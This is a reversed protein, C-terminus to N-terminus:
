LELNERALTPLTYKDSLVEGQETVKITGDLTGSPQALIAEHTPGGGRGVTGGRGHFLRLRVGHDAVCDRLERQASQISWQSATIGSEKNSDSYGLMVEQLDGRATVIARYAPIRLLTDLTQRGSNLEGVGELLPVFGIDARGAHVDILGVERALIAAALVDQPGQTMSIIYSEVISSGFRRHADRICAFTDLTRRAAPSLTVDQPALPRRSSLEDTLLTLREADSLEAYPRGPAGNVATGASGLRDYLEALVVHHAQSHERIDMTALQLGFAAITRMADAVKGGAALEGDSALLSDRLVRLDDFLQTGDAYDHHPVHPADAALRTRTAELKAQVCRIKLRYPEEANVRRYRQPLQPLEALDVALSDMLEDTAPRLRQSVSLESLLTDTAAEAARIGHEHQLTLVATTVDPTVFPNGDRDGGIWTGFRLPSDSLSTPAGLRELTTSLERLVQPAAEAYLEALYYVANRAEDSPEPREARVEDTQWLMDIVESVRTDTAATDREGSLAADAVEADLLDAIQRLKTLISRRAAESPHATFVPRVQLRSAARTIRAVPVQEDRIQRAAEDLWGGHRVRRHRLERGRHVQETINALHFYLSFARALNM